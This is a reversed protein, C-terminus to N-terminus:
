LVGEAQWALYMTDPTTDRQTSRLTFGTDSVSLVTVKWDETFNQNDTAIVDTRPEAGAGSRGRVTSYVGNCYSGNSFYITTSKTMTMNVRILTPRFGTTIVSDTTAGAGGNDTITLVGNAFRSGKQILLETESIAVGVLIEYTGITAGIAGVTDQVYYKEGELLGTFGDVIGSFQITISGGDVGDSIAFGLYKMASTDNADCAYFENDTKNQYVPVPLTAGNITAGSVMAKKASGLSSGIIDPTVVLPAGTGGTATGAELEAQTALEVIGKVTTSANAQGGADVYAKVAKQTAVKADSNAALTTDTDLVSTEMKDTDLASFNGNIDVRSNTILDTSQITVLTSM